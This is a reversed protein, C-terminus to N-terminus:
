TGVAFHSQSWIGATKFDQCSPMHRASTDVEVAVEEPAVELAVEGRVAELVVQAVQMPVSCKLDEPSFTPSALLCVSRGHWSAQVQVRGQVQDGGVEGEALVLLVEEM